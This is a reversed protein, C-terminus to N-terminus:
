LRTASCATIVYECIRSPSKSLDAPLVIVSCDDAETSHPMNSDAPQHSPSVAGMLERITQILLSMLTWAIFAMVSVSAQSSLLHYRHARYSWPVVTALRNNNDM